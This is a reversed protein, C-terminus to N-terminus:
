KPPYCNGVYEPPMDKSMVFQLESDTLPKDSDQPDCFRDWVSREISNGNLAVKVPKDQSDGDATVDVTKMPKPEPSKTNSSHRVPDWLAHRYGGPVVFGRGQDDFEYVTRDRVISQDSAVGDQSYGTASEPGNSACGTFLAASALATALHIFKM